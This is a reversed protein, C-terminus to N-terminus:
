GHGAGLELARVELLGRESEAGGRSLLWVKQGVGRFAVGGVDVWDTMRGLRLREDAAAHSGAYLAPLHVNAETGSSDVLLAAPWLLDLPRKPASLEIRRVRELPLWLYRGGAFVELTPGLLDDHDRLDDFSEGDLKGELPTESAGARALLEGAREAEGARLARLAELRLEAHPPADPPLLPAGDREHVARREAEAHILSQVHSVGVALEPNQTSLSDLQASARDLEGALCLLVALGFRADADLPKARVLATQAALADGLRGAALLDQM